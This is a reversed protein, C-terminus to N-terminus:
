GLVHGVQMPKGGSADRTFASRHRVAEFGTLCKKTRRAVTVKIRCRLKLKKRTAIALFQDCHRFRRLLSIARLRSPFPSAKAIALSERKSKSRARHGGAAKTSDASARRPAKTGIVQPRHGNSLRTVVLFVANIVVMNIITARTNTPEAM